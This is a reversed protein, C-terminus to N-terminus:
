KNVETKYYKISFHYDKAFRGDLSLDTINLFNRAM